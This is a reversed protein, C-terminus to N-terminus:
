RAPDTGGPGSFRASLAGRLETSAWPQGRRTLERAVAPEGGASFWVEAPEAAELLPTLWPTDSGHHPFLLLDYPGRVLGAVLMRGRGAQEADGCLLLSREHWRLELDRSGENGAGPQGRLLALELESSSPGRGLELRGQELDLRPTSHPLREDLHAPLAGAWLEPPYREVLWPLAGAHDSEGHSLAVAVRGVDLERLLPAVASRAVGTRDRSGADFLWCPSGPARVVVATGSGVDLAYVELEKPPGRWPLILLSWGALVLRWLRPARACTLTLVAIGLLCALPRAPLNTPTGPLQDFARLLALQAGALTDLVVEVAGVPFLLWGWALGLFAALLPLLLLTAFAGAWSWEGFLFWVV